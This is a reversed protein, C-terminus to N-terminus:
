DDGRIQTGVGADTFLELLVANDVRGDVIHAARVGTAVADLACRIKPLMGGTITGDNILDQVHQPSLGTLLEGDADLLGPTNTLLMLKEAQL